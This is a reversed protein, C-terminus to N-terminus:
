VRMDMSVSPYGILYLGGATGAGKLGHVGVLAPHEVGCELVVGVHCGAALALLGVPSYNYKGLAAGLVLFLYRGEKEKRKLLFAFLFSAFLFSFGSSFM